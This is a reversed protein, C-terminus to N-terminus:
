TLVHMASGDVPRDAATILAATWRVQDATIVAAIAMNLM